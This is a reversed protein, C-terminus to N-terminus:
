QEGALGGIRELEAVAQRTCQLARAVPGASPGEGLLKAVHQLCHNIVEPPAGLKEREYKSLTGQTLGLVSAFEGQSREGRALRILESQTLPFHWSM